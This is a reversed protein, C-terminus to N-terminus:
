KIVEFDYLGSGFSERGLHKKIIQNFRFNTWKSLECFFTRSKCKVQASLECTTEPM